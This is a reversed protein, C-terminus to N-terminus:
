TFYDAHVLTTKTLLLTFTKFHVNCHPIIQKLLGVFREVFPATKSTKEKETRTYNLDFVLSM